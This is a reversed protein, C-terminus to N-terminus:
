NKTLKELIKLRLNLYNIEKEKMKIIEKLYNIENTM